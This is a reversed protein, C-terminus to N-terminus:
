VHKKNPDRLVIMPTRLKSGVFHIEAKAPDNTLPLQPGIFAVVNDAAPVFKVAGNPTIQGAIKPKSTELDIM